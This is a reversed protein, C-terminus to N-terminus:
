DIFQELRDQWKKPNQSTHFVSYVVVKDAEVEYFVVYPFHQVVARRFQGYVTVHSNPSTYVANFCLDLQQLFREGLGPQRREYWDYAKDMDALADARIILEYPM